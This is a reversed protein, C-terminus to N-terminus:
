VKTQILTPLSRNLYFENQLHTQLLLKKKKKVKMEIKIQTEHCFQLVVKLDKLQFGFLVM